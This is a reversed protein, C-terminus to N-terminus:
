RTRDHRFAMGRRYLLNGAFNITGGTNNTYAAGITPILSGSQLGGFARETSGAAGLSYTDGANSSGTGATYLTNANSGSEAFGWGAPTVSSTGTNALTDFNEPAATGFMTLSIPTDVGAASSAVNRPEFNRKLTQAVGPIVFLINQLFLVGIIMAAMSPSMVLFKKIGASASKDAKRQQISM